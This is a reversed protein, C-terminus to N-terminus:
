LIQVQRLLLLKRWGDHEPIKGVVGKSYGNPASSNTAAYVLLTSSFLPSEMMLGFLFGKRGLRRSPLFLFVDVSSPPSHEAGPPAEAAAVPAEAAAAAGATGTKSM